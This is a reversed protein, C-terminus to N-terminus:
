RASARSISSTRAMARLVHGRRGKYRARLPPDRHVLQHSRSARETPAEFPPCLARGTGKLPQTREPPQQITSKNKQARRQEPHVGQCTKLDQVGTRTQQPGRAKLAAM